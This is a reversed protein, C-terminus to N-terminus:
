RVELNDGSLITKYIKYYERRGLDGDFNRIRLLLKLKLAYYVIYDNSFGDIPRLSELFNLRFKLLFKEADLPNEMGLADSAVKIIEIPIIKDKLDFPKNLKEARTKALALRLNREGENWAMILASDTQEEIKPPLLTINEIVSMAKKGLFRSCLELFSEETIPMQTNESIGDLSPLQSILYYEAM